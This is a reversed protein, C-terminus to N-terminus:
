HSHCLSPQDRHICGDDGLCPSRWRRYGSLGTGPGAWDPLSALEDSFFTIPFTVADHPIQERLQRDLLIPM